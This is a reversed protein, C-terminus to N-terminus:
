MFLSQGEGPADKEFHTKLTKKGEHKVCSIGGYARDRESGNRPSCMPGRQAPPDGRHEPHLCGPTQPTEGDQTITTGRNRGGLLVLAKAQGAGSHVLAYFPRALAVRLRPEDWAARPGTGRRPERPLGPGGRGCRDGAPKRVTAPSIPPSSRRMKIKMEGSIPSTSCRKSHREVM